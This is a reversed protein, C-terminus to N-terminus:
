HDLRKLLHMVLTVLHNNILFEDLRHHVSQHFQMLDESIASVALCHYYTSQSFVLLIMQYYQKQFIVQSAQQENLEIELDGSVM